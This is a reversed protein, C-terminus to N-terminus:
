ESPPDKRVQPKAGEQIAKLTKDRQEKAKKDDPTLELIIDYDALALVYNGMMKNIFARNIYAASTEPDLEIVKSYDALAKALKHEDYWGDLEASEQWCVGRHYYLAGWSPYSEIGKDYDAFAKEYEKIEAYSDGRGALAYKNTPNAELATSFTDIAKNYEGRQYWRYGREVAAIESNKCGSISFLIAVTLTIVIIKM